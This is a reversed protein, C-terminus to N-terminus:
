PARMLTELEALVSEFSYGGTTELEKMEEIFEEQDFTQQAWALLIPPVPEHTFSEPEDTPKENM